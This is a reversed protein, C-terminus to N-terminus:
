RASGVAVGSSPHGGRARIWRSFDAGSMVKVVFSMTAHNLGCFEACAGRFTGIKTPTLDFTNSLGPIADRKFLFAPVWFSHDVDVSTLRLLATSGVPLALEPPAGSVGAVSVGLEPYGFQWSWRFGTVDVVVDHRPALAEVHREAPYTIAFLGCVLVLPIVTYTIELPVNRHFQAPFGVDSKRRRYRIVCWAILAYVIAAVALGVWSFIVWMQRLSEAQVTNDQPLM